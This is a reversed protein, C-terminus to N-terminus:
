VEHNQFQDKITKLDDSIFDEQKDLDEELKLIWQLIREMNTQYALLDASESESPSQFRHSFLRYNNMSIKERRVKTEMTDDDETNTTTATKEKDEIVITSSPLQQFLCMVYM